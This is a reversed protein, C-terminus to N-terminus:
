QEIKASMVSDDQKQSKETSIAVQKLKKTVSAQQEKSSSGLALEALKEKIAKIRMKIQKLEAINFKVHNKYLEIQYKYEKRAKKNMAAIVNPDDNAHSNLIKADQITRKRLTALQTQYYDLCLQYFVEPVGLEIFDRRFSDVEDQDVEGFGSLDGENADITDDFLSLDGQYVRFTLRFLDRLYAIKEERAEPTLTQLDSKQSEVISYKLKDSTTAQEM